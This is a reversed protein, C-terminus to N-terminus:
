SSGASRSSPWVRAPQSRALWNTKEWCQLDHRVTPMLSSFIAAM